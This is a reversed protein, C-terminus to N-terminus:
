RWTRCWCSSTRRSCVTPARIASGASLSGSSSCAREYTAGSAILMVPERMLELSIPCLYASPVTEDELLEDLRRQEAERRAAAVQAGGASLGAEESQAEAKDGCPVTAAGGEGERRLLAKAKVAKKRLVDRRARAAAIAGGDPSALPALRELAARLSEISADLDQSLWLLEADAAATQAVAESTAAAPPAIAPASAAVPAPPDVAALGAGAEGGGQGARKRARADKKLKRAAKLETSAEEEAVLEAEAERARREAERRSAAEAEVEAHACKAYEDGRRAAELLLDSGAREDRSCGRAGKLLLRALVVTAPLDGGRSAKRLWEVAETTQQQLLLLRGLRFSAQLAVLGAGQEAASRYYKSAEAFDVEPVGNGSELCRGLALAAEPLGQEAVARWWDVGTKVNRTVGAGNYLADGILYQALAVREHKADHAVEALTAM